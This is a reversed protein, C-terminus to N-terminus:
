ILYVLRHAHKDVNSYFNLHRVTLNNTFVTVYVVDERFWSIRIYEICAVYSCVHYSVCDGCVSCLRLYHLQACCM